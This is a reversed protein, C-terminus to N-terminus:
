RESKRIPFLTQMGIRVEDYAFICDPSNAYVSYETGITGVPSYTTCLQAQNIASFM